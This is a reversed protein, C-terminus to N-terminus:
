KYLTPLRELLSSKIVPLEIKISPDTFWQTALAIVVLLIVAGMLTFLEANSNKKYLTPPLLQIIKGPLGQTEAYILDIKNEESDFYGSATSPSLFQLFDVCQKKTLPSVEILNCENLLSDTMCKLEYEENTFLFMVKHKRNLVFNLISNILGPQLNIADDIVLLAQKHHVDSKAHNNLSLIKETISEITLNATAKITANIWADKNQTQLISILTSKGVGEPGLIILNEKSNEVLHTVLEVKKTIEQTIFSHFVPNKQFLTPINLQNLTDSDVM